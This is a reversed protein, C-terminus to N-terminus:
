TDGSVDAMYILGEAQLAARFSSDLGYMSDCGVVAFPLSHAKARRIMALGMEPKTM